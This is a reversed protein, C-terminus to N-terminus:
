CIPLRTSACGRPGRDDHRRRQIRDRGANSRGASLPRSLWWAAARASRLARDLRRHGPGLGLGQGGPVATVLMLGDVVSRGALQDAPANADCPAAPTLKGAVLPYKQRFVDIYADLELGPFAEHLSREFDYGLLAGLAQGENVGDLLRLAARMRRSSLDIALQDATGDGQHSEFGARLIAATAAHNLSPAHM